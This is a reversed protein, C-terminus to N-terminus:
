AVKRTKNIQEAIQSFQDVLQKLHSLDKWVITKITKPGDVLDVFGGVIHPVSSVRVKVKNTKM